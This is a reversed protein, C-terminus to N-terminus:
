TKNEYKAQAELCDAVSIPRTNNLWDLTQRAGALFYYDTEKIHGAGIKDLRQLEKKIRAKM